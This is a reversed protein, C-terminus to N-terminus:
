FFRLGSKPIGFIALFAIFREVQSGQFMAVTNAFRPLIAVGRRNTALYCFVNFILYVILSAFDTLL